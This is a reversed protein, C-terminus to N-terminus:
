EFCSNSVKEVTTRVKSLPRMVDLKTKKQKKTKKQVKVLNSGAPLELSGARKGFILDRMFDDIKRPLHLNLPVPNKVLICQM